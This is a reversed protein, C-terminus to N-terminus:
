DLRRFEKIVRSLLGGLPIYGRMERVATRTLRSSYIVEFSPIIEAFFFPTYYM